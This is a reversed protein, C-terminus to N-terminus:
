TFADDTMNASGTWVTQGDRLIFKSHMLKMGAIRRCPYGLRNCWHAPAQQPRTRAAPSM